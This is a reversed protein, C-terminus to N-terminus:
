NASLSIDQAEFSNDITSVVDGVSPGVTGVDTLACSSLTITGSSM